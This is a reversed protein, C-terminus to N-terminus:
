PAAPMGSWVSPMETGADFQESAIHEITARHRKFAGALDNPDTGDAIARDRLASWDVRCAIRDDGNFMAFLIAEPAAQEFEGSPDPSLPLKSSASM